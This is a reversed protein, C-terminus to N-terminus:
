PFDHLVYCFQPMMLVSFDVCGQTIQFFQLGSLYLRVSGITLHDNFLRAVFQCLTSESLPFPLLGNHQCFWQFRSLGSTLTTWSIGATTLSQVTSDLFPLELRPGAAHSLSQLTSTLDFTTLCVPLSLLLGLNGQSLADTATNLTGTIHTSSFIFHHYAANFYLKSLSLDSANFSHVVTVVAMNDVHFLM